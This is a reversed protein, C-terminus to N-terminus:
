EPFSISNYHVEYVGDETTLLLAPLIIDDLKDEMRYEVKNVSSLDVIPEPQSMTGDESTCLTNKDILLDFEGLGLHELIDNVIITNPHLTYEDNWVNMFLAKAFVLELDRISTDCPVVLEKWEINDYTVGIRMSAGQNVYCCSVDDFGFKAHLHGMVDNAIEFDAITM